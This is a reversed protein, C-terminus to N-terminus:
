KKAEIELTWGWRTVACRCCGGPVKRDRTEAGVLKYAVAPDTAWVGVEEHWVTAWCNSVGRRQRSYPSPGFPLFHSRSALLVVLSQKEWSHSFHPQCYPEQWHFSITLVVEVKTKM